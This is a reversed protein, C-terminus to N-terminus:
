NEDTDDRQNEDELDAAAIVETMQVRYNLFWAVLGIAAIVFAAELRGRLGMFAAVIISIGAIIMWFLKM